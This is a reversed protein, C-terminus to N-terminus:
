APLLFTAVVNRTKKCTREGTMLTDFKVRTLSWPLQPCMQYTANSHMGGGGGWGWGRGGKPGFHLFLHSIMRFHKFRGSKASVCVSECESIPLLKVTPALPGHAQNLILYNNVIERKIGSHQTSSFIVFIVRQESIKEKQNIPERSVLTLFLFNNFLKGGSSKIPDFALYISVKENQRPLVDHYNTSM